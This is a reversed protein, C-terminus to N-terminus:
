GNMKTNIKEIQDAHNAKLATMGKMAAEVYTKVVRPKNSDEHPKNSDENKHAKINTGSNVESMDEFTVKHKNEYGEVFLVFAFLLPFPFSIMSKPGKM